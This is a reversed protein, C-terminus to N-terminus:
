DKRFYLLEKLFKGVLYDHYYAYHEHNHTTFKIGRAHFIRIAAHTLEHVVCAMDEITWNFEPLWVFNIRGCGDSEVLAFSTGGNHIQAGVDYKYMKKIYGRFENWKGVYLTFSANYVDDNIKFVKRMKSGM